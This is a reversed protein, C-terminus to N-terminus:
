TGPFMRDLILDEFYRLAPKAALWIMGALPKKSAILDGVTYFSVLVAEVDKRDMGLVETVESITAQAQKEAVAAMKENMM